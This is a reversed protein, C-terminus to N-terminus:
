YSKKIIQYDKVTQAVRCLVTTISVRDKRTFSECNLQMILRRNGASSRLRLRHTEGPKHGDDHRRLTTWKDLLETLRDLGSYSVLWILV